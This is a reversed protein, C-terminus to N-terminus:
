FALVEEGLDSLKAKCNMWLCGTSYSAFNRVCKGFSTDFADQERIDVGLPSGLGCFVALGQGRIGVILAERGRDVHRVGSGHVGHDFECHLAEATDVIADVSEPHTRM